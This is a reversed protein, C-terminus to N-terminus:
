SSSIQLFFTIFQREPNHAKHPRYQQSPFPSLRKINCIFTSPDLGVTKIIVINTLVVQLHHHGKRTKELHGNYVHNWYFQIKSRHRKPRSSPSSTVKHTLEQPETSHPWLTRWYTESMTRDATSIYESNRTKYRGLFRSYVAWILMKQIMGQYSLRNCDLIGPRTPWFDVTGATHPGQATYTDYQTEKGHCTGCKLYSHLTWLNRFSQKEHM